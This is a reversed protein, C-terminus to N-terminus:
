MYYLRETGAYLSKRSTEMIFYTSYGLPPVEVMFVLENKAISGNREPIKKTEESIPVIQATVNAGKPDVVRYQAALVPIRMFDAVAHGLPNYVTMM